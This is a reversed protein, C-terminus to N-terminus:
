NLRATCFYNILILNKNLIWEKTLPNLNMGMINKIKFGNKILTTKLEQPTILKNYDHTKKPIWKLINEALFIAFIKSVQTRNITSLIITGKPKLNKKIKSILVDWEDLHEIIELMLILDYKKKLNISNIDSHIYNIMLESQIAHNKAIEINEKVFDIGTVNANLRALPECTLGGGCGLDLIDLKKIKKKEINQLIYKIRIPIIQHLIKFKGKPKWWEDAISTFHDFEQNKSTKKSM